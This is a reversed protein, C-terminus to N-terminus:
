GHAHYQWCIVGQLSGLSWGPRVMCRIVLPCLPAADSKCPVCPQQGCFGCVYRTPVCLMVLVHLTCAPKSPWRRCASGPQPLLARCRIVGARSSAHWTQMGATAAAAMSGPPVSLNIRPCGPEVTCTASWPALTQPYEGLKV